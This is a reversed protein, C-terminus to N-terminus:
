NPNSSYSVSDRTRGNDPLYVVVNPTIGPETRESQRTFGRSKGWCELTFKVAWASREQVAKALQSQAEDVLSERAELMAESLDRDGTVRKHVANYSMGYRRAIDSLNGHNARLEKLLQSKSIKM